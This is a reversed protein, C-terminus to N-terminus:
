EVAIAHFFTGSVEGRRGGAPGLDNGWGDSLAAVPHDDGADTVSAYHYEHGRLATGKGAFSLDDSLVARRYGLNFKRKAFSTKHGLLGIMPHEAGEADTLTNGLVMFGGCEGHVPKGEGFARIGEIFTTAAALTGAHLEPYGGPLWCADCSMDPAEDALPSFLVIEAGAKRWGNILHPYIFSFAADRALAIRQGPPPIAPRDSGNEVGVGEGSDSSTADQTSDSPIVVERASEVLADLDLQSEVADALDNIRSEIDEHEEAQVLGLHREPLVLDANRRFAGIIPVGLPQIAKELGMLHRDSSVKNLITGTVTIADEFTAYGHLVPAASQSQGSVDMVLVVPIGLRSATDASAGTRGKPGNGGDYLGMASEIILLEIGEAADAILRDVLEPPMSWSDLNVSDRGCAFRHFAPDIYDPGTKAAGVRVGRRQLARLIGLTLTTKGSGSRPAAILLARVRSVSGAM